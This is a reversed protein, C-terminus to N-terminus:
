ISLKNVHVPVIILVHVYNHMQGTKTCKKLYICTCTFITHVHIFVINCYYWKYMGILYMYMYICSVSSHTVDLVSGSVM